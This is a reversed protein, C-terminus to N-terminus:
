QDLTWYTEFCDGVFIVALVTITIAIGPFTALWWSTALYDRGDALIGGWSVQPPQIGLGLFSLSTELIITTAVTLTSIVIFSSMVNPLLHRVIIKGKRVGISTAAKIFEREKLTLVEGRILRAYNVWNTVGLVVILTLMGPSFISLIVLAFLINPISLFSDVIRMFVNDIFGGYYGAILGVTVGIIGAVVVSSIGVLLSVQAGYFLRTLIDRGLHDTGLIYTMTGGELWVPPQLRDVANVADPAHPSLLPALIAILTIILLTFVGVTGTKSKFLLFRWRKFSKSFGSTPKKDIQNTAESTQM